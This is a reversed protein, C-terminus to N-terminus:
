KPTSHGPSCALTLGLGTGGGCPGPPLHRSVSSCPGEPLSPYLHYAQAVYGGEAGPRCRLEEQFSSVPLLVALRVLELPLFLSNRALSSTLVHYQRGSGSPSLPKRFRRRAVGQPSLCGSVSRVIRLLVTSTVGPDGACSM